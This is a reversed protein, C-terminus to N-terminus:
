TGSTRFRWRLSRLTGSCSSFGCRQSPRWPRSGNASWLEASTPLPSRQLYITAGQQVSTLLQNLGYDFSFPLVSILREDERIGLYRIVIRAGALLNAHSILIGKPRGTSGSTYLITAPTDNGDLSHRAATRLSTGSALDVQLVAVDGLAGEELTAVKRSDSIFFRSGSDYVIHHVQASRLGENVPVMVGGALWVGYIAVIAELSKDLYISVRDGPALGRAALTHGLHSAAQAFAQYDLIREGAVVATQSPCRRASAFLADEIRQLDIPTM